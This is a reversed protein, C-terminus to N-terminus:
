LEHLNEQKVSNQLKLPIRGKDCIWRVSTIYM